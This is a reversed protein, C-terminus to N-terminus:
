GYRKEHRLLTSEVRGLAARLREGIPAADDTVSDLVATHAACVVNADGWSVALSTAWQRFDDAAGARKELAKALTPHFTFADDIGFLGLVRPFEVYMITDDSHITGSARHYALVSSFHVNDNDSIFDVGDPVSFELVDAFADHVARENTRRPHWPLDPALSVHRETGYLAAGPLREHMEKVSVTHFPHLHLVAEVAGGGDTLEDFDQATRRSMGCADLLIFRGNQRRVLSMQTGVDVVGLIRFTGRINWFDDAIQTLRSTM